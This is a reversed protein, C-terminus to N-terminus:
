NKIHATSKPAQKAVEREWLKKGSDFEYCLILWRQEAESPKLREGGFYLGKKAEEFGGKREVITLFIKWKVVVPSSWGRGPVEMSWAINEKTNWKVPLNKGEAVGADPGRFQPWSDGAISSTALVLLLLAPWICSPVSAFRAPSM